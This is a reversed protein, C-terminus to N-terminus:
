RAGGGAAIRELLDALRADWVDDALSGLRALVTREAALLTGAASAAARERRLTDAEATATALITALRPSAAGSKALAAIAADIRGLVGNSFVAATADALGPPGSIRIQGLREGLRFAAEAAGLAQATDALIAHGFLPPDHFGNVTKSWEVLEGGAATRNRCVNLGLILGPAPATGLDKWPLSLECTWGGPILAAAGTIAGNWSRDTGREDFIEGAANLALHLYNRHDHLPDIFIEINDDRFLDTSDRGHGGIARVRGAEDCAVALHLRDADFRVAFRTKVPPDGDKRLYVFDEAWVADKWAADDLHGDIVPATATAGVTIVRIDFTAPDTAQAGALTGALALLGAALHRPHM